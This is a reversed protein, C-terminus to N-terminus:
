CTEPRMMYAGLEFFVMMTCDLIDAISDEEGRPEIQGERAM